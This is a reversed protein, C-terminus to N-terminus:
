VTHKFMGYLDNFDKLGSRVLNAVTSSAKGIVSTFDPHLKLYRGHCNPRGVRM